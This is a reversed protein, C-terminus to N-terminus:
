KEGKEAKEAKAPAPKEAKEAKPKAPAKVKAAKHTRTVWTNAPAISDLAAITAYAINTKNNSGLSKSLANSIGAVELM